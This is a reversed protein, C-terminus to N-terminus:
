SPRAPAGASGRVILSSPSIAQHASVQGNVGERGLQDIFWLGCTSALSHIPPRVTTLGPGWWAFWVPDGFGIVSLQDPASIRRKALTNLIGLTVQVSGSLVATPPSPGDLLSCLAYEGAEISPNGLVLQLEDAPLGAKAFAQRVGEARAAGTSLADRGGIYAIARHGLKILHTAASELAQEDDIGFWADGLTPVRRLLQVHPLNELLVASERKPKVTPVIVIGAVRAGVLDRIHRHEVDRDDSSISLVLRYGHRDCSESLAQAISSYFDNRVDPIILGILKSSEGRMMRAPLNGVYGLEDAARRVKTKTDASIRPDDAMARGITSISVGLKEAVDRATVM